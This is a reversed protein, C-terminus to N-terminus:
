RTTMATPLSNIPQAIAIIVCIRIDLGLLDSGLSVSAVVHCGRHSRREVIAGPLVRSLIDRHGLHEFARGHDSNSLRADAARVEVHGSMTLFRLVYWGTVLHCSLNNLQRFAIVVQLDAVTDSDVGDAGTTGAEVATVAVVSLVTMAEVENFVRTAAKGLVHRASWEAKKLSSSSM